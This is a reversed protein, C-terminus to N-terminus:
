ATDYFLSLVTLTKTATIDIYNQIEQKLKSLRHDWENPYKVALLGQKTHSFCSRVTKDGDCYSDPNFRIVVLPRHDIDQSIRMLRMNECSTDYSKHMNEDIEVVIVKEGFDMLIDPRHMSSGCIVRKDFVLDYSDFHERVFDAVLREKTKYNRSNPEDPFM